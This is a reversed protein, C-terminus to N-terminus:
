LDVLHRAMREPKESEYPPNFPRIPQRCCSVSLILDLIFFSSSWRATSHHGERSSPHPSNATRKSRGNTQRCRRPIWRMRTDWPPHFPRPASQLAVRSRCRCQQPPHNQFHKVGFPRNSFRVNPSKPTATPTSAIALHSDGSLLLTPPLGPLQRLKDPAAPAEPESQPAEPMPVVPRFRASGITTGM